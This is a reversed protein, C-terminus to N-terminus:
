KMQAIQRQRTAVRNWNGIPTTSIISYCFFTYFFDETETGVSSSLFVRSTWTYTHTFHKIVKSYIPDLIYEVILRHRWSWGISHAFKNKTIKSFSIITCTIADGCNVVFANFIGRPVLRDETHLQTCHTHTQQTSKSRAMYIATFIYSWLYTYTADHVQLIADWVPM